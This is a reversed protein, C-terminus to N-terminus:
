MVRGLVLYFYIFTELIILYLDYSMLSLMNFLYTMLSFELAPVIALTTEDTKVSRPVHWNVYPRSTGETRM